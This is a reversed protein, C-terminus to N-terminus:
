SPEPPCLDCTGKLKEGALVRGLLSRVERDLQNAKESNQLMMLLRQYEEVMKTIQQKLILNQVTFKLKEIDYEDGRGLYYGAFTLDTVVMKSIRGQDDLVETEGTNVDFSGPYMGKLRNSIAHLVAGFLGPSYIIRTKMPSSWKEVRRYEPCTSSLNVIIAQMYSGMLARMQNSLEVSEKMADKYLNWISPYGYELHRRAQDASTIEPEKPEKYSLGNADYNFSALVGSGKHWGDFITRAIFESHKQYQDAWRFMLMQEKAGRQVWFILFLIIISALGTFIGIIMNLQEPSLGFIEM